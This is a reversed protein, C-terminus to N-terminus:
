FIFLLFVLLFIHFCRGLESPLALCESLTFVPSLPHLRLFPMYVYIHTNAIILSYYCYIYLVPVMKLMKSLSYVFYTKYTNPAVCGLILDAYSHRDLLNGQPLVWSSPRESPLSWNVQPLVPCQQIQVSQLSKESEKHQQNKQVTSTLPGPYWAYPILPPIQYAALPFVAICVTPHASRRNGYM